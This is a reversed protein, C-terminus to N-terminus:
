AWQHANRPRDHRSGLIAAKLLTVPRAALAIFAHKRAWWHAHCSRVEHFPM